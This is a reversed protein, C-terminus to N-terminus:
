EAQSTPPLMNNVVLATASDCNKAVWPHIFCATNNILRPAPGFVKLKLKCEIEQMPSLDIRKVVKKSTSEPLDNAENCEFKEVKTNKPLFDVLKGDNLTCSGFNLLRIEYEIKQEVGVTLYKASKQVLVGDCVWSPNVGQEGNQDMAHATFAAFFATALWGMRFLKM